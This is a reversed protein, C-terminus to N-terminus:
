RSYIGWEFGVFIGDSCAGCGITKFLRVLCICVLPHNRYLGIVPPLGALMAYAMGQPILMVAVIIGASLDGSLDKKNYNPLWQLAPIFARIRDM